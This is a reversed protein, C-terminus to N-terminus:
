FDLKFRGRIGWEAVNGHDLYSLRRVLDVRFLKFINAIGVSAEMYPGQDLSFTTTNGTGDTPFRLLNPDNRPDNEARMGGYIGKFTMVERWKLKKLLPIKNFLAGNLFYDINISVYEDSVFELFNMLNYSQLQYSYTQNARHIALLPFPVKGIVTGGESTVDAYGFQSFYFRKYINLRLSTYNYGSGLIGNIGRAANLTLIPYKNPMPIRYTKGQYFKENPAWRLELTAESTTVDQENQRTELDLPETGAQFRLGGAASQKWNKFGLKFSFRSPFEQWYEINAIDNYLWKDNVGRKFSLLIFDEQVFQLEQGPIKTDRQYSARIASVPFKWISRGSLSYTAGILYKWREDKFGYAGYGEVYIRESFNTTTRGGLRLRFGEVPNFSYFTNVPGLEWPGFNKFGALLLTAIDMTRRFSPMKKLSDINQYTKSEAFSLPDHRANSWYSEGQEEVNVTDTPQESYFEEPHEIGAVVNKLSFSREGYIGGGNKSIGFDARMRSFTMPYRGTTDKEFRQDIRLERVWNLNINKNLGMDVKRISYKGDLSVLVQGQFVFDSLNRPIFSLQVLQEGDLDLTDTIFFEYFTPAGDAIPSLFMNTLVPINNEYIDVESYLYNLYTALGEDDLYEEFSVRKVGKVVTKTREPDRRWFNDTITEKLYMPLVAKGELLTTDVNDFMFAYKKFLKRGKLRETVGSLSMQLKEYEEYELFDHSETRNSEKHAIVERVLDVAPNDKNRYKHKERRVVAERLLIADQELSMNLITEVGAPVTRVLAKYGLSQFRVTICEPKNCRLVYKGDPDTITGVQTGEFLVTAFPIPTKTEANRLVGLVVTEGTPQAILPTLAVGTMFMVVLCTISNWLVVKM